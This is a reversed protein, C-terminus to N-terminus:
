SSYGCGATAAGRMKARRMTAPMEVARGARRRRRRRRDRRKRKDAVVHRREVLIKRRIGDVHRQCAVLLAAVDYRQPRETHRLDDRTGPEDRSIPPPIPTAARRQPGVGRLQGFVAENDRPCYATSTAICSAACRQTRCHAPRTRYRRRRRAPDYASEFRDDCRAIRDVACAAHISARRANASDGAARALWRRRASVIAREAKPRASSTAARM